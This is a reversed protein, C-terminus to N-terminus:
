GVLGGRRVKGFEECDLIKDDGNEDGFQVLAWTLSSSNDDYRQGDCWKTFAARWADGQDSTEWGEKSGDPAIFFSSYGNVVSGVIPSVLDKFDVNPSWPEGEPALEIAKNRALETLKRDWSTVLVAHHCMYGMRNGKESSLCTRLNSQAAKQQGM